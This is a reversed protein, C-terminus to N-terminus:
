CNVELEWWIYYIYVYLNILGMLLSFLLM